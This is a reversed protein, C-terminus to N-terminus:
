TVINLCGNFPRLRLQREVIDIPQCFKRFRKRGIFIEIQDMAGVRRVVVIVAAIFLGDLQIEVVLM